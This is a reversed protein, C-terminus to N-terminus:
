EEGGESLEGIEEIAALLQKVQYGKAKGGDDQLNILDM